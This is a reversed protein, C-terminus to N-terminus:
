EGNPQGNTRWLMTYADEPPNKYFHPRRGVATFGAATYLAIAATNSVRVELSVQELNREVAEKCLANLIGRGLGARRYEPRVALNLIQGEGPALLMSGYAVVRQKETCVIGIAGPELLFKLANESWPESFCLAELEAVDPLHEPRIREIQMM